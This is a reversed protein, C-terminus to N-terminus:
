YIGVTITFGLELNIIIVRTGDNGKSRVEYDQTDNVKVLSCNYWITTSTCLTILPKWVLDM